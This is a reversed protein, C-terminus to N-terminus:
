CPGRGYLHMNEHLWSSNQEEVQDWTFRWAWNGLTTGPTNMRHGKGLGLVDQMPLIALKAVSALASQVLARPMGCAPNGLYRNVHEQQGTDLDSFWSLTTDNDHTGTYVVNNPTHNHPLYPNGPGGDFAFQLILMGPIDFRERLAEVEPTIIGLNEAILPLGGGEVSDFLAQLLAEGPAKVWRGEIATDSHAPIEWYAELGRFHDIRIWDYLTLQGKFRELWWSFGNAQMRDWRYHPNGWRQGTASFYDPPVGAVVRSRGEGILDFEERRAWVDASDGAVFIPIDGFLLIGRSNAYARLAQWQEFFVYQEFNAQNVRQALRQRAAKLAAPQRDRLDAPWDQWCQGGLEARIAMFLSFDPLWDQHRQLFSQYSESFGAGSREFAERALFLCHERPDFESSVSLSAVRIDDPTLWGRDVLWGLDIMRPNGAHASLCQYPSGDPHTPNVPLTQWVSLGCGVMFDVFRYAERGLDGNNLNGPLSTIQLLIGGRRRDLISHAASVDSEGFKEEEPAMRYRGRYGSRM